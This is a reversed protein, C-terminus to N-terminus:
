HRGYVNKSQFRNCLMIVLHLLMIVRHLLMIVLHLLIIVFHLVAYHSFPVFRLEYDCFTIVANHCM